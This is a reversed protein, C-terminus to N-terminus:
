PLPGLFDAAFYPGTLPSINLVGVANSDRKPDECTCYVRTIRASSHTEIQNPLKSVTGAKNWLFNVTFVITPAVPEKTESPLPTALLLLDDGAHASQMRWSHGKWSARLDTYSGDWAHPGPFVQEADKSLRGILTDTLLAESYLTSNHKLNAHIALGEPLLVHTTVSNVDWTNWGRALRRQLSQYEPVESFPEIRAAARPSSQAPLRLGAALAVTLILLAARCRISLHM